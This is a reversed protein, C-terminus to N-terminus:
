LEEPVRMETETKGTCCHDLTPFINDIPCLFLPPSEFSRICDHAIVVKHVLDELGTTHKRSSIFTM